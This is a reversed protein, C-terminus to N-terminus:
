KGEIAIITKDIGSFFDQLLAYCDSFEYPTGQDVASKHLHDYEYRKGSFKKGKPPKVAHANDHGFVRKNYKNHLTLNYRIGHPREKTPPVVWAEIKWWYGDDRHVQEGHMSLLVDIEDM